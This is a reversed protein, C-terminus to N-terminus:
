LLHNNTIIVNTGTGIMIELANGQILVHGEDAGQIMVALDIQNEIENAIMDEIEIMIVIMTEAGVIMTGEGTVIIVETMEIEIEIGVQQGTM